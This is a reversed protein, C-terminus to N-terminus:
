QQARHHPNSWVDYQTITMGSAAGLRDIKCRAKDYYSSYKHHYPLLTAPNIDGPPCDCWDPYQKIWRQAVDEDDFVGLIDRGDDNNEVTVIFVDM